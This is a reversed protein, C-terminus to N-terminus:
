RRQDQKGSTRTTMSKWYAESMAGLHNAMVQYAREADHAAIAAYIEQHGQYARRMTGRIPAQIAVTRQDLLWASLANNLATFIPNRPIEALVDHFAVDTTAFQGADGIARENHRLAVALRDIEKPSAHCAAHRALGCEFLARAEWFDAMGNPRALLTQASSSLQQLFGPNSLQTVKARAKPRAAILGAAQLSLLADRVSNRSVGFAEALERESPLLSGDPYEGSNIKDTLRKAVDLYLRPHSSRRQIM